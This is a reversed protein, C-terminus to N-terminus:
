PPAEAAPAGAELRTRAVTVPVTATRVVREAVSGLLARRLGTRGHTGVFIRSAGKAKAVSVIAAAAQGYEVLPVLEIAGAAERATVGEVITDLRLRADRMLQETDIFAAGAGMDIGLSGPPTVPEIVHLVLLRGDGHGETLDDLALKLADDSWQSFDHAALWIRM